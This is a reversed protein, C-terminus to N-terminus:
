QRFWTADVQLLRGNSEDVFAQRIAWLEFGASQLRDIMESFLCQGEYLPILSMELQVGVFRDLVRNAGTLVRDEYGQTDIKLFPVSGPQFYKNAVSDLRWLPVRESGVYRSNPAIEAHAHLMNLVSSSVSNNAVHIAIEGDESGIAGQPAVEWLPDKKSASLLKGRAEALPEFSVIRGHFGDERLAQAFQGTNAGVDFVLNVSHASLMAILQPGSSNAPRYRCLDFGLRRAAHKVVSNLM